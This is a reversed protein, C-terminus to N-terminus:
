TADKRIKGLNLFTTEDMHVKQVEPNESLTRYIWAEEVM